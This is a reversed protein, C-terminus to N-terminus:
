MEWWRKGWKERWARELGRMRVARRRWVSWCHPYEPISLRYATWYPPEDLWRAAEFKVKEMREAKEEIYRM